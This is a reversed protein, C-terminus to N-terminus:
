DLYIFENLNLAMLAVRDLAQQESLGAESRLREILRNATRLDAEAPERQTVLSLASRVRSSLDGPQASLREGLLAAQDNTFASNLM